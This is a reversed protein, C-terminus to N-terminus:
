RASIVRSDAVNRRFVSLGLPNNIMDDVGGEAEPDTPVVTAPRDARRHRLASDSEETSLQSVRPDVNNRPPRCTSAGNDTRRFCPNSWCTCCTPQYYTTIFDEDDSFFFSKSPSVPVVPLLSFGDKTSSRHYPIQPFIIGTRCNKKITATRSLQSNPSTM